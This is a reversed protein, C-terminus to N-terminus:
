LKVGRKSIPIHTTRTPHIETKGLSFDSFKKIGRDELVSRFVISISHLCNPHFAPVETAQAFDKDQGSISFVKGEFPICNGCWIPKGERRIYIINNRKAEICFVEDYYKVIEKKINKLRLYINKSERIVYTDHNITYYGNKFKNVKGSTKIFRCTPRKGIKLILETLQDAMKKSTTIYTRSEYLKDSNNWKIKSKRIHGDGLCYADLFIRISKKDAFMIDNPIYKKNAKGFQMLYIGLKKSNFAIGNNRDCINIWKLYKECCRKIKNYKEKNVQRSQSITIRYNNEGEKYTSGESLYYGMFEAYDFGIRNGEWTECGAYFISYKDKLLDEARRIDFKDKNYRSKYDNQLLMNHTKTVLINLQKGKFRIMEESYAQTRNKIRSWQMQKNNINLTLVLEFGHLETFYKWGEDTYIETDKSYCIPTTTNHSSVQILDSGVTLATNVVATSATERLKTRTYMETYSKVNYHRTVGNKDVVAIYKGDLAKTLAEEIEKANIDFTADSSYLGAEIYDNIQRSGINQQQRGSALRDLEKEGSDLGINYGSIAETILSNKTEVNIQTNKTKTINIDKISMTQIEINRTSKKQKLDNLTDSVVKDYYKPIFEVAWETWVKKAAVYFKHLDAGWKNWFVNSTEKTVALIRILVDIGETIKDIATSLKDAIRLEEKVSM